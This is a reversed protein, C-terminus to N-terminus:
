PAHPFFRQSLINAVEEHSHVLGDPGQLSPVKSIKRGHRWAAVDWLKSKEIYEDAWKRKAVRVTGKLRAQATGRAKTTQANCLNQAALACAANWWPSAKPHHPRRKRFIEENTRHIDATYAAAEEEIEAETLTPQLPRPRSREGFAKTWVESREPDIIFGLDGEQNHRPPPERTYGSVHLMAHDSGLSGEWDVTLGSFTAAQIAAENYWALDIVSDKEHKAGRRTIEGPANALTLLNTAAWEEIRTASSSRPVEPPSWTQSHANFDGIVLTPIVADFDLGLLTDLSSSDRIDHYFNIVRWQENDLIVDLVQVSPHSCTDLRPVVTFHTTDRTGQAQKRAYAMVKPPKDKRFGPYVIDWGPASVGGLVDEGERTNDNRATGIRNFWPEQLLILHTNTISNLLAHTVANRKRMNASAIQIHPQAPMLCPEHQYHRRTPTLPLVGPAEHSSSSRGAAEHSSSNRGSAEHSSTSCGHAGPPEM